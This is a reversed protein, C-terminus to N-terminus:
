TKMIFALAGAAVAISSYAWFCLHTYDTSSIDATTVDDESSAIGTTFGAAIVHKSAYTGRLKVATDATSTVNAQADWAAECNNILISRTICDWASTATNYVYAHTTTLCILQTTGDTKKFEEIKLVTGNLMNTKLPGRTPFQKYGFDSIMEGNGTRMGIAYPTAEKALLTPPASTILGKTPAYVYKYAM